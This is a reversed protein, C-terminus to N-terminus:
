LLFQHGAAALFESGVNTLFPLTYMEDISAIRPNNKYDPLVQGADAISRVPETVLMVKKGYKATIEGIKNVKGAGFIIRVPQYYEFEKMM